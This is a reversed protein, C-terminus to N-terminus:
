AKKGTVGKEKWRGSFYYGVSLVAGAIWGIGIGYFMYASGYRASLFFVLPLRLIIMSLVTDVMAFMGDGAGRMANNLCFMVAFAAYFPMVCGVYTSGAAIVAPTRSFYAILTPALPILVLCIGSWVISAIVTVRIGRGVRDMKKAGVNQGVFSTVANCLSQIPLFAMQDMRSGINYGATYEKGYVNVNGMVVMGGFAVLSMQLGSPLGIGIIKRFLAGDFFRSFPHVALDPYRRNIYFIGFLWSALQSLVTALAAGFVGWHFAAVFLFDLIINMVSSVALFLLTSRSNGFGALIGANLNYGIQGLIGGCLVTLYLQAEALATPDVHLIRMLPHVLLVALATIPLVAWTFATYITDVADKARRFEGAGYFQAIVVTAGNSFGMFLSTMMFLVPFGIGVAALAADGVYNGVVWSDVMNYLQQLFSGALLPLAFAFIHGAPSGTTMDRLGSAQKQAMFVVRGSFFKKSIGM